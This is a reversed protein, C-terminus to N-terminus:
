CGNNKSRSNSSNNSSNSNTSSSRPRDDDYDDNNDTRTSSSTSSGTARSNLTEPYGARKWAEFYKSISRAVATNGQPMSESKVAAASDAGASKAQSYTTLPPDKANNGSSKHCNTCYKNLIARISGTSSIDRGNETAKEYSVQLGTSSQLALYSSKTSCTGTAPAPGPSSSKKGGGDCAYTLSGVIMLTCFLKLRLNPYKLLALM